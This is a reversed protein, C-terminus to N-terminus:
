PLEALELQPPNSKSTEGPRESDHVEEEVLTEKVPKKKKPNRRKVCCYM